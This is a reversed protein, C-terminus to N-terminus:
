DNASAPVIKLSTRGMLAIDAHFDAGVAMGEERATLLQDIRFTAYITELLFRRLRFLELFLALGGNFRCDVLM